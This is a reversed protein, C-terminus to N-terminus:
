VVINFLPSQVKKPKNECKNFSKFGKDSIVNDVVRFNIEVEEM